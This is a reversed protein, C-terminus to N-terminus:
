ARRVNSPCAGLFANLRDANWAGAPVMATPANGIGGMLARIETVHDPADDEVENLVLNVARWRTPEDLEMLVDYFYDRRTTSKGAVRREDILQNYSPLDLNVERIINLFRPGSFYCNGKADILRWLRNYVGTWNIEMDDAM